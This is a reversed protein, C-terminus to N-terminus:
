EEEEAIQKSIVIGIVTAIVGGIMMALGTTVQYGGPEVFAIGIGYITLGLSAAVLGLATLIRSAEAMHEGLRAGLRLVNWTEPGSGIGCAVLGTTEDLIGPGDGSTSRTEAGQGRNVAVAM